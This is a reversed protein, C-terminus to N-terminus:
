VFFLNKEDDGDVSRDQEAQGNKVFNKTLRGLKKQSMNLFIDNYIDIQKNFM